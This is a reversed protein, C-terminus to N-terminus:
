DEVDFFKSLINQFEKNLFQTQNSDLLIDYDQQLIEILMSLLENSIEAVEGNQVRDDILKM